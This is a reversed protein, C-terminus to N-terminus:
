NRPLKSLRVATVKFEESYKYTTGPDPKPM